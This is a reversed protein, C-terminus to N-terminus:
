FRCDLFDKRVERALGIMVDSGAALKLSQKGSGNEDPNDRSLRPTKPERPPTSTIAGGGGGRV